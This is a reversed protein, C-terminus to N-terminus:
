QQISFTIPISYIVRVPKNNIKGPQMQPLKAMVRNAEKVLRDNPARVKIDIPNGNEDITFMTAIKFKDGQGSLDEALSTDFNRQIFRKMKENMCDYKEERSMDEDCGPFLPMEQVAMIPSSTTSTTSKSKAEAKSSSVPTVAPETVPTEERKKDDNEPVLENNDVVKLKSPEIIKPTEIRVPKAIPQKIIPNDPIVRYVDHDEEWLDIITTGVIAPVPKTEETTTEIVMWVLLLAAVLGIQFNIIPNVKTNISKKREIRSLVSTAADTDKKFLSM